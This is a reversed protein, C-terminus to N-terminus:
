DLLLGALSVTFWVFIKLTHVAVVKVMLEEWNQRFLTENNIYYHEMLIKLLTLILLSSLFCYMVKLAVMKFYDYYAELIYKGLVYKYRNTFLCVHTECLNIFVPIIKYFPIRYYHKYYLISELSCPTCHRKVCLGHLSRTKRVNLLVLVKPIQALLRVGSSLFM